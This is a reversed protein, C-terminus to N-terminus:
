QQQNDAKCARAGATHLHFKELNRHSLTLRTHLPSDFAQMCPQTHPLVVYKSASRCGTMHSSILNRLQLVQHGDARWWQWASWCMNSHAAQRNSNDSGESHCRPQWTLQLM